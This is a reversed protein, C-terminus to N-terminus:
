FEGFQLDLPRNSAGRRKRRSSWRYVADYGAALMEPSFANAESEEEPKKARTRDRVWNGYVAADGKDPSRGLRTRIDEKSEVFIKGNYTWFRPTVLDQILELDRPLAIRGLRLDERMQWQMQARLNAFREENSVLRLEPSVDLGEDTTAFSRAGGNLAQVRMGLRKAENVTGAGVGVSDVGVYRAHGGKARVEEVLRSGLVNADPCAFSEVELLCAGDWRAIAALDGRESNAVDVGWARKGTRLAADHYRAVAAECWERRITM